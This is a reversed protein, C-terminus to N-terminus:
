SQFVSTGPSRNMAMIARKNQNIPRKFESFLYYVRISILYEFGSLFCPLITRRSYINM